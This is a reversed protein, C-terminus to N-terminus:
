QGGRLEIAMANPAKVIRRVADAGYANKLMQGTVDSTFIFRTKPLEYTLAILEQMAPLRQTIVGSDLKAGALEKGLGDVVVVARGIGAISDLIPRHRDEYVPGLEAARVWIIRWGVAVCARAVAAAFSTKGVGTPATGDELKSGHIMLVQTTSRIWEFALEHLARSGIEASSGPPILPADLQAWRFRAPIAGCPNTVSGPSACTICVGAAREDGALRAFCKSCKARVELSASEIRFTTERAVRAIDDVSFGRTVM